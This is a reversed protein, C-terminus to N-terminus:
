HTSLSKTALNKEYYQLHIPLFQRFLLLLSLLLEYVREKVLGKKGDPFTTSLKLVHGNPVDWYLGSWVALVGFVAGLYAGTPDGAHANPGSHELYMIAFQGPNPSIQLGSLAPTLLSNYFMLFDLVILISLDCGVHVPAHVTFGSCM